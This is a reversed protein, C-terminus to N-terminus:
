ALTRGARAVVADEIAAMLALPDISGTYANLVRKIVPDGYGEIVPLIVAPLHEVDDDLAMEYRKVGAILYLDGRRNKQVLLPTNATPQREKAANAYPHMQLDDLHIHDYRGDALYSDFLSESSEDAGDDSDDEPLDDYEFLEDNEISDFGDIVGSLDLTGLAVRENRGGMGAVVVVDARQEDLVWFHGNVRRLIVNSHGLQSMLDVAAKLYRPSMYFAVKKSAILQMQGRAAYSLKATVMAKKLDKLSIKSEFEADGDQLSSPTMIRSMDPFKGTVLGDEGVTSDDTKNTPHIGSKDFPKVTKIRAAIHGDSAYTATGDYFIGTMVARMDDVFSKELMKVIPDQTDELVASDSVANKQSNAIWGDIDSPNISKFVTQDNDRTPMVLCTVVGDKSKLLMPTNAEGAILEFESYGLSALLNVAKEIYVPNFKIKLNYDDEGVPISLMAFTRTSVVGKATDDMAKMISFFKNTDVTVAVQKAKIASDLIRDMEPFKTKKDMFEDSKPLYILGRNVKSDAKIIVATHGDSAILDGQESTYIGTLYQRVDRYATFPSIAKILGDMDTLSVTKKISKVTVAPQLSEDPLGLVMHRMFGVPKKIKRDYLIRTKIKNQMNENPPEGYLTEYAPLINGYRNSKPDISQMQKITALIRDNDSIKIKPAAASELVGMCLDLVALPDAQIDSDTVTQIDM